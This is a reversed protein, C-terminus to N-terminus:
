AARRCVFVSCTRWRETAYQVDGVVIRRRAYCGYHHQDVAGAVTSTRMQDPRQRGLGRRVEGGGGESERSFAPIHWAFYVASRHRHPLAKKNGEASNAQSVNEVFPVDIFPELSRTVAVILRDHYEIGNMANIHDACGQCWILRAVEKDPTGEKSVPLSLDIESQHQPWALAMLTWFYLLHQM